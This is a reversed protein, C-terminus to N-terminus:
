HIEDYINALAQSPDQAQTIPRGIVLHSAGKEIAEKPTMVRKQDQTASGAPRIGPVMLIFDDGCAKRIIEIEHSSCVIGDLGVDQTLEALRLVQDKIPTQQGVELISDDNLSTLVTVALLKPREIELKDSEEKLADIAAKMMDRGGSAHLNLYAPRLKAISRITKAVTNPIDHYKLDLFLPLNPFSEQMTKIGTPGYTNFFELGLKLAGKHKGESLAKALSTAEDLNTTDVACFVKHDLISM